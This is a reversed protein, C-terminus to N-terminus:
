KGLLLSFNELAKCLENLFRAAPAGDLARHDFTLSLGMVPCVSVEGNIMRVKETIACVGLICTQPPNIVPTFSEVGLAGLNTVTITGDTLLDPSISGTKAKDIIGKAALSLENLTMSDANFITPVLLGRDTDVAVGLNVNRFYRIKDGLYHANCASHNKLTKAAAFLIMDNLTINGIGLAEGSSKVSKRFEMIEAANFSANLTLQAMESLSTHMSKAIVKRVNSLKEDTYESELAASKQPTLVPNKLDKTTVTGAIGTGQLGGAYSEAAAKTVKYGEAALKQIDREIIRGYPGSAAAKSLDVNQKQAANRARPSVKYEGKESKEPVIEVAKLEAKDPEKAKDEKQPSEDTKIFESIDEGEEGIVCINDLCPVDDGEEALLVLVTGNLESEVDFSAKDTECTFLIEGKSVSDGENKHWQTIICSEVSQGQRPMIVAKAM